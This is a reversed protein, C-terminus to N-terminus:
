TCLNSKQLLGMIIFNWLKYSRYLIKIAGHVSVFVYFIMTNSNSSNVQAMPKQFQM